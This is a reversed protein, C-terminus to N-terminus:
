IKKFTNPNHLFEGMIVPIGKYCWRYNDFTFGYDLIDQLITAEFSEKSLFQIGGPKDSKQQQYIRMINSIPLNMLTSLYLLTHVCNDNRILQYVTENITTTNMTNFYFDTKLSTSDWPKQEGNTEREVDSRILKFVDEIKINVTEVYKLFYKTYVSNEGPNLAAIASTDPATAFGIFTGSGANIPALGTTGLSKSFSLSNRCADLLIINAKEPHNSMYDSIVAFDILSTNIFISKNPNYNCEIPVLYNKGDIQVGHGSYYFLITSYSSASDLFESAKIYFENRSLDFASIVDFGLSQLKRQVDIGDKYCSSLSAQYQYNSNAVVFALGKKVNM